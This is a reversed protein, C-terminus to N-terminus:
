PQARRAETVARRPAVLLQHRRLRRHLPHPLEEHTDVFRSDDGRVRMHAVVAGHVAHSQQVGAADAQRVLTPRTRVPRQEPRAHLVSAGFVVEVLGFAPNPRAPVREGVQRHLEQARRRRAGLRDRVGFFPRERASTTPMYFTPLSADFPRAVGRPVTSVNLTRLEVPLSLGWISYRKNLANMPRSDPRVHRLQASTITGFSSNPTLSPM